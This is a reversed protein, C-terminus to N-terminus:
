VNKNSTKNPLHFFIDTILSLLASTYKQNDEFYSENSNLILHASM